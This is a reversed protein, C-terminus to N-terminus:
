PQAPPGTKARLWRSRKLDPAERFSPASPDWLGEPIPSSPRDAFTMKDTKRSANAEALLVGVPKKPNFRRGAVVRYVPAGYKSFLRIRVIVYQWQHDETEEIVIEHLETGAPPITLIGGVYYLRVSDYNGMIFHPLTPVFGAMGM